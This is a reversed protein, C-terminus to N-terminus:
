ESWLSISELWSFSLEQLLREIHILDAFNINELSVSINGLENSETGLKDHLRTAWHQDWM